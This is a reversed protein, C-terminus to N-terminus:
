KIRQHTTKVDGQQRSDLIWEWSASRTGQTSTHDIEVGRGATSPRDEEVGRHVTCSYRTNAATRSTRSHTSTQAPERQRSRQRKREKVARRHRKIDATLTNTHWKETKWKTFLLWKTQKFTDILESNKVLTKDGQKRKRKRPNLKEREWDPLANAQSRRRDLLRASQTFSSVSYFFM